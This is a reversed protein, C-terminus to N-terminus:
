SFSIQIVSGDGYRKNLEIREANGSGIPEPLPTPTTTSTLTPTFMTTNTSTSTPTVTNTPTQPNTPIPSPTFRPVRVTGCGNVLLIILATILSWIMRLLLQKRKM